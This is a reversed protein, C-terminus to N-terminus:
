RQAEDKTEAACRWTPRMDWPERAELISSKVTGDENIVKQPAMLYPKWFCDAAKLSHLGKIVGM